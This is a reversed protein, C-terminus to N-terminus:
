PLNSYWITGMLPVQTGWIVPELNRNLGFKWIGFDVWRNPWHMINNSDDTPRLDGTYPLGTHFKLESLQYEQNIAFRRESQPVRNNAPKTISGDAKVELRIEPVDSSANDRAYVSKINGHIDTEYGSIDIFHDTVPQEEPDIQGRSAPENVGGIIVRGSDIHRRIQSLALDSAIKDTKMRKAIAEYLVMGGGGIATEGGYATPNAGACAHEYCADLDGERWGPPNFEKLKVTTRGYIQLRHKLSTGIPGLKDLYDTEGTERLEKLYVSEYDNLDRESAPIIGSRGLESALLESYNDKKVVEKPEKGLLDINNIPNNKSYAYLDIGGEIGVPDASSWRGLWAAYYRAQHYYLGSEEDREKGTYRYRKPTEMHNPVAQYSTSGYPSYEEYSIIRAKDDLELVASGLHNTFQYRILRELTGDHIDDWMETLAIRQKNDMIHLTERVLGANAGSHRRYVEFHGLYIREDKPEGSPLETVKRTRQGAADYVYYTREGQRKIGDEDEDNIKQRQTMCLQDKFDYQMIQLQPMRTMNGHNDYEYTEVPPNNGGVKTSSLRNSFKVLTGGTGDEILSKTGYFYERTWGPNSLETRIHHMKLLNGVADYVYSEEYTGMARGDNPHKLGVRPVDNYSHPRPAGDIQGLHERGTAEVLRYIADYTYDATPEVRKHHFFIIQQADDRIHTINGVPDYTYRLNQVECGPWDPLPTTPCDDPFTAANRMTLLHVLRYTLPDYEYFTSAGNDYDVRERQAKANYDINDVGVPSPPVIAPDLLRNPETPHDLWVQIRELLNVENYVPQIVNIKAGPQDSHPAIVQLPRNLADYTTRSTITEDELMPPNAEELAEELAELDDRDVSRWDLAQKYQKAIGRSTRLPNGKFDYSETRAIGAQDLHLYLKGRL